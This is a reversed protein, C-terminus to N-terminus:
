PAPNRAVDTLLLTVFGLSGRYGHLWTHRHGAAADLVAPSDLDHPHALAWSTATGTWSWEYDDWEEATSVHGGIPAWGAATVADVTTALDDYDDTTFGADLSVQNPPHEWFGDGVLVAGGPALHARAAALTPLLGGFAHSAGVSLVLDYRYAALYDAAPTLHLTLRETLGAAAALTRGHEIATADLDVGDGRVGPRGSLARRLWAGTACGIDLVREDGRRLAHELLRAVASESVPAAIPHEAHALASLRSREM